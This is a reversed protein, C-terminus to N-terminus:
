LYFRLHWWDILLSKVWSFMHLWSLFTSLSSLVLVLFWWYKSVASSCSDAWLVLFLGTLCSFIWFFFFFLLQFDLSSLTQLFLFNDVKYINRLVCTLHSDAFLYKIQCCPPRWRTKCTCDQQSLCNREWVSILLMRTYLWLEFVRVTPQQTGKWCTEWSTWVLSTKWCIVEQRGDGELNSCAM